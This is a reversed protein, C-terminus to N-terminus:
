LRLIGIMKSINKRFPFTARRVALGEDFIEGAKRLALEKERTEL